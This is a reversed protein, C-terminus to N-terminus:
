GGHFSSCTAALFSLVQPVVDGGHALSAAHDAPRPAHADPLSWLCTHAAVVSAGNPGGQPDRWRLGLHRQHHGGLDLVAQMVEPKHYRGFGACGAHRCPACWPCCVSCNWNLRCRCPQGPPSSEGGIDLIDAGDDVLQECHAM